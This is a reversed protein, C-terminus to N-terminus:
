AWIIFFLPTAKWPLSVITGRANLYDVFMNILCQRSAAIRAPMRIM